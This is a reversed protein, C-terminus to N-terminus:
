KKRKAVLEDYTCEISRGLSMRDGAGVYKEFGPLKELAVIEAKSKGAALGQDVHERIAHFYDRFALVEKASGTVPLGPRAHGFIFLTKEDHAKVAAELVKPWNEMSAGAPPDIFPHREHFVLDGMHAVNAKKFTIVADGGTHAPGFHRAEITEDGLKVKWEQDFTTDPVVVNEYGREKGQMKMYKPVNTHGVIKKAVARFVENGQTHDGHHHTNFLIEVPKESRKQIGDLCIKATKPFQSDIFAIGGDSVFTGITGGQGNFIGVGGRLDKFETRAPGAQMATLWEPFLSGIAALSSVELFRRRDM